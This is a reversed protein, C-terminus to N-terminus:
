GTWNSSKELIWHFRPISRSTSASTSCLITALVWQVGVAILLWSFAPGLHPLWSCCLVGSVRELSCCTSPPLPLSAVFNRCLWSPVRVLPLCVFVARRVWAEMWLVLLSCLRVERCSEGDTMAEKMLSSGDHGNSSRCTWRVSWSGDLGSCLRGPCPWTRLFRCCLLHKRRQHSGDRWPIREEWVKWPYRGPLIGRRASRIRWTPGSGCCNEHLLLSRLGCAGRAVEIGLGQERDLGVGRGLLPEHAERGPRRRSGGVGCMRGM